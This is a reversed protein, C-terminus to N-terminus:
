RLLARLAKCVPAHIWGDHPIDESALCWCSSGDDMVRLPPTAEKWQRREEIAARIYVVFDLGEQYADVLQDRGNMTQLPTGYRERGVLDRQRMDEIVLEWVPTSDNPISPPQDEIPPQRHDHM